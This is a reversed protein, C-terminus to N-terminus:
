DHLRWRRWALATDQNLKESAVPEARVIRAGGALLNKVQKAAM